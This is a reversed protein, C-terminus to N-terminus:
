LQAMYEEVLDPQGKTQFRINQLFIDLSNREDQLAFGNHLLNILLEEYDLYDINIKKTKQNFSKSIDTLYELHPQLTEYRYPTILVILSNNELCKEVVERLLITEEQDLIKSHLNLFFIQPTESISIEFLNQKISYFNSNDRILGISAYNINLRHLEELLLELTNEICYKKIEADKPVLHVVGIDKNNLHLIRDFFNRQYNTNQDQTSLIKRGVILKLQRLIRTRIIKSSKSEM